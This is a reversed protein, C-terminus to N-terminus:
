TRYEFVCNWSVSAPGAIHPPNPSRNLWPSL